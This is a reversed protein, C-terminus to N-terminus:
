CKVDREDTLGLKGIPPQPKFLSAVVPNNEDSRGRHIHTATIEEVNQVNVKYSIDNGFSAAAASDGL